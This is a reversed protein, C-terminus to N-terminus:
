GTPTWIRDALPPAPERRLERLMWRSRPPIKVPLWGGAAPALILFRAGDELEAPLPEINLFQGAELELQDETLLLQVPKVAPGRLKDQLAAIAQDVATSV